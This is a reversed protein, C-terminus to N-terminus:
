IYGDKKNEREKQFERRLKMGENEQERKEINKLLMDRFEKINKQKKEEPTLEREKSEPKNRPMDKLIKQRNRGERLKNIISRRKRIFVLVLVLVFVLSLIFIKKWVEKRSM